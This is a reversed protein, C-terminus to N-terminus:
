GKKHQIMKLLHGCKWKVDDTKLVLSNVYDDLFTEGM